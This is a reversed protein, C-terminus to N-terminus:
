NKGQKIFYPSYVPLDIHKVLIINNSIIVVNPDCPRLSLQECRLVHHVSWTM